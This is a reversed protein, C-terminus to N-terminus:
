RIISTDIQFISTDVETIFVFVLQPEEKPILDLRGFVTEDMELSLRKIYKKSNQKENWFGCDVSRGYTTLGYLRWFLLYNQGKDNALGFWGAVSVAIKM